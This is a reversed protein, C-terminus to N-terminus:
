ESSPLSSRGQRIQHIQQKRRIKELQILALKEELIFIHGVQEEIYHQQCKLRSDLTKVQDATQSMRTELEAYDSRATQIENQISVSIEKQQLCEQKKMEIAKVLGNLALRKRKLRIQSNSLIEQDKILQPWIKKKANPEPELTKLQQRAVSLQLERVTLEAKWAVQFAKQALEIHRDVEAEKRCVEDKSNEFNGELGNIALKKSTSNEIFQKLTLQWHQLTQQTANAEAEKLKVYDDMKKKRQEIHAEDTYLPEMSGDVADVKSCM